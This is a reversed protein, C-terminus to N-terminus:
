GACRPTHGTAGTKSSTIGSWRGFFRHAPALNYDVRHQFAKYNWNYPTAVALYNNRPEQRPDSPDNNPVPYLKVYSNYVPNILRSKPIINGPMPLRIWHGPRDADREVTLPDYIQYRSADVQLFQSFDGERNALTPVTKNYQSPDETKQDIFGNFSFFSFLKNKGNFIKPIIM